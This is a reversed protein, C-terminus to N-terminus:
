DRRIVVILMLYNISVSSPPESMLNSTHELEESTNLVPPLVPVSIEPLVPGTETISAPLLMDLRNLILFIIIGSLLVGNSM